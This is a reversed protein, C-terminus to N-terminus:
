TAISLAKISQLPLQPFKDAATPPKAIELPKTEPSLIGLFPM